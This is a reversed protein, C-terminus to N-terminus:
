KAEIPFINLFVGETTPIPIANLKITQHGKENEFVVGLDVYTNVDKNDKKYSGTRQKVNAILKSNAM